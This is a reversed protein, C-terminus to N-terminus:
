NKKEEEIRILHCYKFTDLETIEYRRKIPNLANNLCVMVIEGKDRNGGRKVKINYDKEKNFNQAYLVPVSGFNNDVISYERLNPNTKELQRMFHIYQEDKYISDPNYSVDNMTIYFGYTALSIGLGWLVQKLYKSSETLPSVFRYFSVIGMALLYANIMYLPAYYWATKTSSMSVIIFYSLFALLLCVALNKSSKSNQPNLFIFPITWLFAFWPAHRRTFYLEFYYFFGGTHGEITNKYRGFLEYNWMREFFGPYANELYLITFTYSAVLAFAAVYTSSRVFLKLFVGRYIAYVILGPILILSLLNKTLLAAISFCTFLILDKLKDHECYRYFFLISLLSYVAFPVDQDGFRAMHDRMFAISTLLIISMIVGYAPEQFEQKSFRIVYFFCLVLILALPVRLAKEGFGFVKFSAAQIFTTFPLKTNKHNPLITDIKKFNPLYTNNEAMYMARGAFLSEDWTKIPHKGIHNFLTLYIFLGYVAFLLYKFEKRM